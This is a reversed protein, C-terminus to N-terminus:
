TNRIVKKIYPPRMVQDHFASCIELATV